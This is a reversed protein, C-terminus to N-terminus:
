FFIEFSLENIRRLSELSECLARLSREIESREDGCLASSFAAAAIQARNLDDYPIFFALSVEAKKLQEEVRRAIAEAATRDDTLSEPLKELMTRVVALEREAYNSLTFCLGLLLLLGLTFAAVEVILKKM